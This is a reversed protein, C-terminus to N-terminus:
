PYDEGDVSPCVISGWGQAAWYKAKASNMWMSRRRTSGTNVFEVRGQRRLARTVDAPATTIPLGALDCLGRHRMAAMARRETISSLMAAASKVPWGAGIARTLVKPDYGGRRALEQDIAKVTPLDRALSTVLDAPDPHERPSTM